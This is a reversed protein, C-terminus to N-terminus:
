DGDSLKHLFLGVRLYARLIFSPAHHKGFYYYLSRRHEEAMKKKELETSKGWYHILEAQPVVWSEWGKLHARYCLDTDELYMFINEDFNGVEKLMERRLIICVGGLAEVRCPRDLPIEQQLYKKSGPNGPWISSVPSKRAFIINSYTPFRRFTPQLSGDENLVKPGALGARLNGDLFKILSKFLGKKIVTDPNLIMLYRGSSVAMGQNCARGFGLNDLNKILKVDPFDVSITEASGDSSANDVVIVELNKDTSSWEAYLSHLCQRLLERVNRNVIIVSLEMM